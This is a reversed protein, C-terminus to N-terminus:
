LNDTGSVWRPFGSKTLKPADVSPNSVSVMAEGAGGKSRDFRLRGRRAINVAAVVDRDLLERCRQCWLKRELQKSSQLREGCKPCTRSTGRTESKSLTVVPVGVWAAKYEVQRKFEHFPWSNMRSRYSRMQGNGGRYLGRIESIDEFVIGQRNKLASDVVQKSVLHLLQQVRHKRRTGYKTTIRRRIRVDNRKFSRTISRTTEVIEVVDSVDYQTVSQGNGVTVNRLNRDVGVTGALEMIEEVDRSICLALSQETLTFSNVKLSATSLIRTTQSNLSIKEFRRAGVPVSLEGDAVKFGYCTTLMLKKLYPKTTKYGRRISKKRAALIGAAKSIACLKYCSPINFAELKRYSLLSLRKLTSADSRLGIEICINTMAKFDRMLGLLRESPNFRQQVSKRALV